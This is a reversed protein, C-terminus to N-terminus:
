QDHHREGLIRAPRGCIARSAQLGSMVAAEVCGVNLATSVWDGALYLNTFGSGGAPLRAANTGPLTLVYRDSPTINARWYQDDFRAPGIAGMPSVLFAPNLGSGGSTALPWICGAQSAFWSLVRQKVEAKVRAPFDHDGYPTAPPEPLPGCLYAVQGPIAHRPWAEEPLVLSLDGYSSFPQTYGGIIAPPYVWGSQLLTPTLWVQVSQTPVTQVERIMRGWTTPQAKALEACVEGLAGLGIGLVVLHFDDGLKLPCLPTGRWDSWPSELDIARASLETGEVLQEYRPEAPWSAGLRGPVLPEYESAQLGKHLTAQRTLEIAEIVDGRVRLREVRHFFKFQVGRRHLVEYFPVLVTDGMGARMKWMVSGRYGFCLRLAGRLFTGAAMRPPRRVDGGEYAFCADYLSRVPPSELSSPSAGHAALWGCFELHDIVDLGNWVLGDRIVGLSVALGLDLLIRLRRAEDDSSRATPSAPIMVQRVALLGREIRRCHEAAQAQSLGSLERIIARVEGMTEAPDLYGARRLRQTMWDVLSQLYDLLTPAEAEDWPLLADSPFTVPWVRCAGDIREIWAIFDQREFAQDWALLGPPRSLERYCDHIVRFANRYFGNWVHLGHEEIRAYRGRGAACKGGLRWGVQYVTVDEYADRWRPDSTIAFAASLAGIGGGLIAIKKRGTGM